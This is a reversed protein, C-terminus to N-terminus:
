AFYCDFVGDKLTAVKLMELYARLTYNGAGPGSQFTLDIGQNNIREARNPRLAVWQGNRGLGEAENAINCGEFLDTSLNTVGTEQYIDKQTMPLKGEASQTVSFMAAPNKLDKSFEFQNNYRINIISADQNAATPAKAVSMGGLLSESIFNSDDQVSLIVKSVLRGNGGLPFTLGVLATQDGTRKALRYDVYQFSLSKNQERYKEMVEGDYIISDYILKVEDQNIPVIRDDTDGKTVQVRQTQVSGALSLTPEVFVLDIHVEDDIMFMPLQNFRLFPFLDSLFVSYVPADSTTQATNGNMKQFPLLSMFGGAGLGRAAANAGDAMERGNDIILGQASNPTLTADNERSGYRPKLAMCRQSLYQEREKNNENSIFLSQYAHFNSYDDISCVTRNGITLTASKILSSIGVNLPFYSANTTNQPTVAMTIKSNSHLFGAVRNLTFRCRSDTITVPDIIDTYLTQGYSSPIEGIKILDPIRGEVPASAPASGPASSPPSKDTDM